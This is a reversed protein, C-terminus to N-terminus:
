AKKINSTQTIAPNLSEINSIEKQKCHKGQPSHKALKGRGPQCQTCEMACKINNRIKLKCNQPKKKMQPRFPIEIIQIPCVPLLSVSKRHAVFHNLKPISFEIPARFVFSQALNLNSHFTHPMRIKM